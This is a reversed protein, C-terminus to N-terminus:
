VSSRVSHFTTVGLTYFEIQKEGTCFYLLVCDVCLLVAKNTRGGQRTLSGRQYKGELFSLRHTASVLSAGRFKLFCIHFVSLDQSLRHQM